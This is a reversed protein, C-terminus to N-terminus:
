TYAHITDFVPDIIMSESAHISMIMGIIGLVMFYRVKYIGPGKTHNLRIGNALHSLDNLQNLRAGEVDSFELHTVQVSVLGSLEVLLVLALREELLYFFFM